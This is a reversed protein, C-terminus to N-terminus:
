PRGKWADVLFEEVGLVEIEDRLRDTLRNETPMHLVGYHYLRGFLACLERVTDDEGEVETKGPMPLVTANGNELEEIPDYTVQFESREGEGAGRVREAIRVVENLSVDEGVVVSWEDWSGGEEAVDLLKVVYRALDDSHTLSILQNGDGPVAAKRGYVDIAWTFPAMNTATYPM